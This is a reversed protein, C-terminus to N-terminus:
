FQLPQALQFQIVRGAPVPYSARSVSRDNRTNFRTNDLQVPGTTKIPITRGGVTAQTLDVKLRQNSSVTRRSSTVKGTMPTGARLLVKGKEVLDGALQMPVRTGIADVSTITQTTQVVFTTGAPITTALALNGALLILAPIVVYVLKTKM